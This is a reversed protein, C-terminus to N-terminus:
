EQVPVYGKKHAHNLSARFTVLARNVTEASVKRRLEKQLGEIDEDKLSAIRRDKLTPLVYPRSLRNSTHAWERYRDGKVVEMKPQEVYERILEAVTLGVKATQAKEQRTPAQGQRVESLFATAAAAAENFSSVKLSDLAKTRYKHDYRFRAVWTMTDSRPKYLGVALGKSVKRFHPDHQAPAANQGKVTSIDIRAM